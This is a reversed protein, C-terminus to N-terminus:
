GGAGRRHGSHGSQGSDVDKGVGTSEQRDASDRLRMVMDAVAKATVFNEPVFEEIPLTLRFQEELFVLLELVALSDILGQEILETDAAIEGSHPKAANSTLWHIILDTTGPM